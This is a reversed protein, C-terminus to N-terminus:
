SHRSSNKTTTTRTTTTTTTARTKVIKVRVYKSHTQIYLITRNSHVFHNNNNVSQNTYIPYNPNTTRISINMKSQICINNSNNNNNNNVPQGTHVSSNSKTSHISCHLPFWQNLHVLQLHPKILGSHVMKLQPKVLRSPAGVGVRRRIRSFHRLTHLLLRRTKRILWSGPRNGISRTFSVPINPCLRIDLLHLELGFRTYPLQWYVRSGTSYTRINYCYHVYM